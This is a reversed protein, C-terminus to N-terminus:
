EAYGQTGPIWVEQVRRPRPNGHFIVVRCDEPLSGNGRSYRSTAYRTGPKVIDAKYSKFWGPYIDNFVPTRDGMVKRIFGQDGWCETTVCRNIWGARDTFFVSWIQEKDKNPIWMVSSMLYQPHFFDRLMTFDPSLSELIPCIDGTIVTDLDIYFLDDEVDPRFLELKAWWGRCDYWRHIFPIFTVGPVRAHQCDTFCLVEYGVPLQNVLWQVDSVDYDGGSRLVLAIKM